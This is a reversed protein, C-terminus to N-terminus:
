NIKRPRWKSAQSHCALLILFAHSSFFFNFFSSSKSRAFHVRTLYSTFTTCIDMNLSKFNEFSRSLLVFHSTRTDCVQLPGPRATLASFDPSLDTNVLLSPAQHEHTPRGNSRRRRGDGVPSSCCGVPPLPKPSSLSHVSVRVVNLFSLAGWYPVPVIFFDTMCTFTCNFLVHIKSHTDHKVNFTSEKM